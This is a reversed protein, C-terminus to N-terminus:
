FLCHQKIFKKVGALLCSRTRITVDEGGTEVLCWRSPNWPIREGNEMGQQYNDRSRM